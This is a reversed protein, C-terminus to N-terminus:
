TKVEYVRVNAGVRQISFVRRVCFNETVDSYGGRTLSEDM